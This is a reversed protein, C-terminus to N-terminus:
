SLGWPVDAPQTLDDSRAASVVQMIIPETVALQDGASILQTVRQDVSSGTARDYEVWATTDVLIV